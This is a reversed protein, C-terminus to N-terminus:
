RAPRYPTFAGLVCIPGPISGGPEIGRIRDGRCYRDGFPEVILTSTPRLGPCAARLRNVWIADLGRYVVTRSDVVRLSQAQVQPVCDQPAGAVRGALERDLEERATDGLADDAAMCGALALPLILARM